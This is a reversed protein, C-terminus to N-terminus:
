APTGPQNESIAGAAGKMAALDGLMAQARGSALEQAASMLIAYAQQEEPGRIIRKSLAWDLLGLYWKFLEARDIVGSTDNGFFQLAERARALELAKNVNALTGAPVIDYERPVEFKKLLRPEEENAVRFFIQPSGFEYWLEWVMRHVLAMSEQFMKADLGLSSQFQEVIQNVEAATRRETPRLADGIAADFVGAYDEAYRRTQYEEQLYLPINGFSQVLPEIDSFDTVPILRGPAFQFNQPAAGGVTKYKFVPALQIAIADLRSQHLKDIYQSLASLMKSLGRPAYWRRATREFEFRVFPWRPFPFVFPQRGIVARTAPHYWIITRQGDRWCFIQWVETREDKILQVQEKNQHKIDESTPTPSVIEPVEAIIGAAKWRELVRRTVQHKVVIWEADDLDTTYSPVVVNVPDVARIRPRDDTVTEYEIRVREAGGRIAEILEPDLQEPLLDYEDMLVRAVDDPSMNAPDDFLAKPDLVRVTRETAYHWDVQLLAFGRHAIMDVLYGLEHVAERMHVRFLWDYFQEVLRAAEVDSPEVARFYAVPQADLVLSLIRPKWRRIIRDQTPIKINSAGPWPFTRRSTDSCFRQETLKAQEALWGAREEDAVEIQAILDEYDERSPAAQFPNM